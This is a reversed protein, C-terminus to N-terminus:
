AIRDTSHFATQGRKYKKNNKQQGNGAISDVFRPFTGQKKTRQQKDQKPASPAFTL